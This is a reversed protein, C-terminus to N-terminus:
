LASRHNTFFLHINICHYFSKINPSFLLLFFFSLFVVTSLV